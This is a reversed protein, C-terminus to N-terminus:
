KSGGMGLIDHTKGAEALERARLFQDEPMAGFYVPSGDAGSLVKTADDLELVYARLAPDVVAANDPTFRLGFKEGLVERVRPHAFMETGPYATAVFMQKNVTGAADGCTRYFAEQWEMFAVSTQLRELTEGPYGMIWTLNAHIGARKTNQVGAMMTRPFEHGGVRDVGNSLIFGGKGMDSLTHKNASEAGFGIYVCGSRRMADVRLPANFGTDPRLDAAEDLRGHTGWRLGARALPEMHPVMDLVRQRQVMFNDDFVGVFDVGHADRLHAMEEAFRAASLVGYNREGTAGRFCFRCSFPCGRSSVTNISRTMTFPAASSNGAAAGWIPNTVYTELAPGGLVGYDPFPLADLNLPRGGDYVFRPRVAHVDRLYPRLHGNASAMPLGLEKIKVADYVIKLIVDDGESHAVGDLEPIWEFLGERFETALGGGSVVFADPSVRRAAAAAWEQWRLTTVMGSIAVVHPHGHVRVHERLATEAEAFTLLRGAAGAGPVRVRCANLDLCSVRVGFASLRAALLAIGTPACNPPASERLPMNVFVVRAGGVDERKVAAAVAAPHHYAHATKVNV